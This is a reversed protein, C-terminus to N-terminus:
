PADGYNVACVVGLTHVGQGPALFTPVQFLDPHGVTGNPVTATVFHCPRFIGDIPWQYPAGSGSAPSTAPVRQEPSRYTGVATLALVVLTPIM